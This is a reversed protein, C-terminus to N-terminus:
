AASEGNTKNSASPPAEEETDDSGLAEPVEFGPDASPEHWLPPDIGFVAQVKLATALSARQEGYLLKNVLGESTGLANQAQRQNWGRDVLALWMQRAAENFEKGVTRRTLTRVPM